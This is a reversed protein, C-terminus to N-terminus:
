SRRQAALQELIAGAAQLLSATVATSLAVSALALAVVLLNTGGAVLAVVTVLASVVGFGIVCTALTALRNSLASSGPLVTPLPWSRGGKALGPLPAGTADFM